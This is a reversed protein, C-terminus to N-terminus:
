RRSWRIAEDVDKKTVGKERFQANAEEALENFEKKLDPSEMKKLLISENIRVALLKDDPKFGLQKKIKQPLDVYELRSM